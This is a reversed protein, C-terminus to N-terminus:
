PNGHQAAREDLAACLEILLREGPHEIDRAAESEEETLWFVGTECAALLLLAAMGTRGDFSAAVAEGNRLAVEASGTPVALHLVGSHHVRLLVQLLEILGISGLQGAFDSQKRYAEQVARLLVPDVGRASLQEQAVTGTDWDQIADRAISVVFVTSGIRIRNGHALVTRVSIREENVHTGNRSGLDTISVVEHVAGVTLRAHHRTSTVDEVVIDCDRARGLVYQRALQLPIRGGAVTLLDPM